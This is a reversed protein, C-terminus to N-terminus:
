EFSMVMKQENMVNYYTVPTNNYPDQYEGIRTFKKLVFPLGNCMFFDPADGVEFHLHPADSNGSNGLLALPQGEKVKDGTKIMFSGTVCHAYMAYRGNGIDLIIHNGAYDVPAKFNLHNHTNGDNETMTDSCAVVTGDAVAYLTDRYCFYSSNKAPDGAYFKDFNDDVQMNDFAFREGTGLKGGIFIITYFHYDNTSQNFFMWKTGKVPSAIVLPTENYKPTFVGGELIVDKNNVTDRLVLRNSIRQPPTKGLPVPLQISFYYNYLKDYPMLNNVPLPDQYIKPFDGTNYTVLVTKTADDLVNIQRLSLGKKKWEFTKLTFPIRLFQDTKFPTDNIIVEIILPNEATYVTEKKRCGSLLMPLSLLAIIYILNKM